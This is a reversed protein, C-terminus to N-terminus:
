VATTTEKSSEDEVKDFLQYAYAWEPNIDLVVLQFWEEKSLFFLEKFISTVTYVKDYLKLYVLEEKREKKIRVRDGVKFM